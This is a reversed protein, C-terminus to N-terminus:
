EVGHVNFYLTKMASRAAIQMIKFIELPSKRVEMKLEGFPLVAIIGDVAAVITALHRERTTFDAANMQGIMSGIGLTKM